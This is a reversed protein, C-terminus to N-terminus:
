GELSVPTEAPDAAGDSAELAKLQQEMMALQTQLSAIADEYGACRNAFNQSLVRAKYEDATFQKSEGTNSMTNGKQSGGLQVKGYITSDKM